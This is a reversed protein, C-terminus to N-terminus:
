CRAILKLLESAHEDNHNVSYMMYREVVEAACESNGESVILSVYLLLMNKLLLSSVRGKIYIRALKLAEPGACDLKVVHLLHQTVAEEEYGCETIYNVVM